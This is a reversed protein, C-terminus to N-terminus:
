IAYLIKNAKKALMKPSPATKPPNADAYRPEFYPRLFARIMVATGSKTPQTSMADDLLKGCIRMPLNKDPKAAAAYEGDM